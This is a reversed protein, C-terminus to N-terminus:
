PTAPEIVIETMMGGLEEEGNNLFQVNTTYIFYTGPEVESTDLIVDRAEGGGITV